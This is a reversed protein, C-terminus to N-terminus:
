GETLVLACSGRETLVDVNCEPISPYEYEHPEFPHQHTLQQYSLQELLGDVSPPDNCPTAVPFQNVNFTGHERWQAPHEEGKMSPAKDKYGPPDYSTTLSTPMAAELEM